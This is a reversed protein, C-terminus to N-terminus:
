FIFILVLNERITSIIKFFSVMLKEKIIPRESDTDNIFTEGKHDIIVAPDSLKSPLTVFYIVSNLAEKFIETQKLDLEKEKNNVLYTYDGNEIIHTIQEEGLNSAVKKQYYFHDGDNKFQYYDGRFVFQFHATKYQEGGHANIAESVWKEAETPEEKIEEKVIDSNDNSFSKKENDCALLSIGIISFTVVSKINM